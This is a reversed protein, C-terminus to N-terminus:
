GEILRLPKDFVSLVDSLERGRKLTRRGSRVIFEDHKGNRRKAVAFAPAELSHRFISFVAVPGYIDLAYDKWEGTMVRRSYCDMLTRFEDRDFRVRQKSGGRRRYDAFNVLETM